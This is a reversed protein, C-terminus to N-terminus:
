HAPDGRHAVVVVFDKATMARAGDQGSSIPMIWDIGHEVSARGPQRVTGSTQQTADIVPAPMRVQARRAREIAFIVSLTDGTNVSSGWVKVAITSDSHFQVRAGTERFESLSAPSKDRRAGSQPSSDSRPLSLLKCKM